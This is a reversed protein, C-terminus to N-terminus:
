DLCRREFSRVLRHEDEAKEFFGDLYRIAVDADKRPLEPISRVAARIADSKANIARIATYLSESSICHGRYWRHTVRSIRLSPDPKAYRTNVLGSLDFDFPVYFRRSGIEFIDGNHCCTDDLYATVLSWDTNGILYQFVFVKALHEQDFSRLSMGDADVPSGGVRDALGSASEILFGYRRFTSPNLVGDSDTYNIRVLRVRYGVDTLLNFIRYAAYEKLLYTESRKSKGCHTVLKLRRQGVFPSLVDADEAFDLRL